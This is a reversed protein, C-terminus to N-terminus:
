KKISIGIKEVPLRYSRGRSFRFHWKRFKLFRSSSFIRMKSYIESRKKRKEISGLIFFFLRYQLEPASHQVSYTSYIKVRFLVSISNSALNASLDAGKPRMCIITFKIWKYHFYWTGIAIRFGAMASLLIPDQAWPEYYNARM